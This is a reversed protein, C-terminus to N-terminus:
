CFEKFVEQCSLRYRHPSYLVTTSGSGTADLRSILDRLEDINSVNPLRTNAEEMTLAMKNGGILFQVRSSNPLKAFTQRLRLYRFANTLHLKILHPM